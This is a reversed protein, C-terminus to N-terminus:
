YERKLSDAEQPRCYLNAPDSAKAGSFGISVAFHDWGHRSGDAFDLKVNFVVLRDFL